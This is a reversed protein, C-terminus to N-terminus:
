KEKEYEEASIIRVPAYQRKLRENKAKLEKLSMRMKKSSKTAYGNFTTNKADM